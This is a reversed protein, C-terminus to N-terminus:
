THPNEGIRIQRLMTHGPAVTRGARVPRTMSANDRSNRGQMFRQMGPMNEDFQRRRM